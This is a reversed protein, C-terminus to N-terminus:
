EIAQVAEMKRSVLRGVMEQIREHLPEKMQAFALEACVEERRHPSALFSTSKRPNNTLDILVEADAKAHVQFRLSLQTGARGTAPHNIARFAGSCQIIFQAAKPDSTIRIGMGTFFDAFHSALAPSRSDIYFAPDGLFRMYTSYQDLLKAKSVKAVVEVRVGLSVKKEVVVRYADVVGDAGSFLQRQLDGQVDVKSYGVVITGLVQEVAGRLAKQLALEQTAAEGVALVVGSEGYQEQASRLILAEDAINETTVCVMYDKGNVSVQGLPKMGRMMTELKSEISQTMESTRTRKGEKTQSTQRLTRQATMQEGHLYAAMQRKAELTAEEVRVEATRSTDASIEAAILCYLGEEVTEGAYVFQHSAVSERAMSLWADHDLALSAGAFVGACICVFLRKM